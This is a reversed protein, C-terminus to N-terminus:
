RGAKRNLKYREMDLKMQMETPVVGGDRQKMESAPGKMPVVSVFSARM